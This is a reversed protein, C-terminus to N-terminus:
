PRLSKNQLTKTTRRKLHPICFSTSPSQCLSVLYHFLDKGVSVNELRKRVQKECYAKVKQVPASAPPIYGIYVGLWPVHSLFSMIRIHRDTNSDYHRLISPSVSWKTSEFMELFDNRGEKLM